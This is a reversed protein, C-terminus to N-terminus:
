YLVRYNKRSSLRINFTRHFFFFFKLPYLVFSLYPIVHEPFLRSTRGGNSRGLNCLLALLCTMYNNLLNRFKTIYKLTSNKGALSGM